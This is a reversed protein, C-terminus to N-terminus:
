GPQAERRRLARAVLRALLTASASALVFPVAFYALDAAHFHHGPEDLFIFLGLLALEALAGLALAVIVSRPPRTTSAGATM